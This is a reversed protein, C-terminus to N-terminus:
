PTRRLSAIGGAADQWVSQLAERAQDRGRDMARTYTRMSVSGSPMHGTVEDIVIQPVGADHLLATYRHRFSHPHLAGPLELQQGARRVKDQLTQPRYPQGRSRLSFFLLPLTRVPGDPAAWPLTIERNGNLLTSRALAAGAFSPLPITRV